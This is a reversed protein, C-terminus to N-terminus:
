FRALSSGVDIRFCMGFDILVNTDLCSFFNYFDIRGQLAQVRSLTTRTMLFLDKAQHNHSSSLRWCLYPIQLCHLIMKRFRSAFLMSFPVPVSALMLSCGIMFQPLFTTCFHHLRPCKCLTNRTYPVHKGYRLALLSGVPLFRM